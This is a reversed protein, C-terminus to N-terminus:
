CPTSPLTSARELLECRAGCAARRIVIGAQQITKSGATTGQDPTLLTDAMVIKLQSMPLGLEDAVIQLLATAIGTGLEVKGCYVTVTGDATLELFSGVRNLERPRAVEPHLSM